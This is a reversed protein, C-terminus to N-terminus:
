VERSRCMEAAPQATAGPAGRGGAGTGVPTNGGGDVGPPGQPWVWGLTLNLYAPGEALLASLPGLGLGDTLVSSMPM